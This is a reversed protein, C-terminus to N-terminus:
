ERKLLSSQLPVPVDMGQCVCVWLPIGAESVILPLQDCHLICSNRHQDEVEYSPIDTMIQHLVKHPKDEWRDNIKRKEQFTDAKILILNGPKLGVTGIKWDYYLKHRQPEATSQAQAEQLASRLHDSVTAIYKDACQTSASQRPIEASRLTPFYFDVPLRPRCGFMFYHSSYGMVASQTTNYAHVIEALHGQWDAKEDEGLKGIM